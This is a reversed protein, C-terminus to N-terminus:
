LMTVANQQLGDAAGAAAAHTPKRRGHLRRQRDRGSITQPSLKVEEQSALCTNVVGNVALWSDNYTAAAQETLIVRCTSRSRRYENCAATINNVFLFLRRTRFFHGGLASDAYATPTNFRHRTRRGTRGDTQRDRPCRPRCCCLRMAVPSACPRSPQM